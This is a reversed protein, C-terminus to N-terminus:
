NLTGLVTLVCPLVRKVLRLIQLLPISIATGTTETMVSLATAM